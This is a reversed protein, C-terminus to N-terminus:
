LWDGLLARIEKARKATDARLQASKTLDEHEIGDFADLRQAIGELFPDGTINFSRFIKGIDTINTVVTSKFTGHKGVAIDKTKLNEREDYANMRDVMNELPKALRQLLDKQAGELAATIDAEFREKMSKELASDGTTYASIDPVPSLDLNLSFANEIESVSPPSVEYSGLNRVANQIFEYSRAVFADRLVDHERKIDEVIGTVEGIYINPLLRRDRGWQTTYGTVISRAATHKAKIADVYQEAGPLRKVNTRGTGEKAGHRHDSELSARKDLRTMGLASTQVAAIVAVEGIMKSLPKSNISANFNADM